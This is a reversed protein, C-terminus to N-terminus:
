ATAMIGIIALAVVLENLTFGRQDRMMFRM